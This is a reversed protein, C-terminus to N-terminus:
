PPTDRLDNGALGYRPARFLEGRDSVSRGLHLCVCAGPHTLGTHDCVNAMM